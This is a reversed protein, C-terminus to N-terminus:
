RNIPNNKLTEHDNIEEWMKDITLLLPDFGTFEKISEYEKETITSTMYVGDIELTLKIKRM